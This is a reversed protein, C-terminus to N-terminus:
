KSVLIKGPLQEILGKLQLITVISSIENINIKFYNILLEFHVPQRGIIFDYVAKETDSLEINNKIKKDEEVVYGLEELVDEVCTVPKAGDKILKNTGKSLPSNINGPVAFVERGQELAFETTILSGSKEAAEVVIVAKALGSIIRNRAPFHGPIPDVGIFYESVIAGAKSINKMLNYNSKPYCIDIGCGLVAITRGGSEIAGKHAAADIGYAMGSIITIGKSALESAFKYAAWKGYPSANRSGVIAIANDDKEYMNGKKYLLYPPDFINKLNEPYNEENKCLVDISNNKLDKLLNDITKKDRNKVINHIIDRNIGKAGNLKDTSAHFVNEASGFYEITKELTKSGIGQVNSLWLLYDKETM